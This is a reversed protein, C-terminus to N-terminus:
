GKLAALTAAEQRQFEAMAQEGTLTLDPAEGRGMRQLQAYYWPMRAYPPAIDAEVDLADAGESLIRAPLDPESILTRGLGIVDAALVKAIFCTYDMVTSAHESTDIASLIRIM